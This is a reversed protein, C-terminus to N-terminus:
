PNSLDRRWRWYNGHFTWWSISIWKAIAATARCSVRCASPESVAGATAEAATIDALLGRMMQNIITTILSNDDWLDYEDYVRPYGRWNQCLPSRLRRGNMLWTGDGIWVVSAMFVCVALSVLKGWTPINVTKRIERPPSAVAFDNDTKRSIFRVIAM